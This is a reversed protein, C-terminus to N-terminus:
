QSRMRVQRRFNGNSHHQQPPTEGPGAVRHPPNSAMRHPPNTGGDRFALPASVLNDEAGMMEAVPDDYDKFIVKDMGPVEDMEAQSRSVSVQGFSDTSYRRFEKLSANWLHQGQGPNFSPNHFGRRDGMAVAVPAAVFAVPPEEPDDSYNSVMLEKKGVVKNGAAPPAPDVELSEGEGEWVSMEEVGDLVGAGDAVEEEEAEGRGKNQPASQPRTRRAHQVVLPDIM